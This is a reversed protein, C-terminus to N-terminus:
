AGTELDIRIVHERAVLVTAGDLDFTLFRIPHEANLESRLDLATAPEMDSIDLTGGDSLYVTVQM